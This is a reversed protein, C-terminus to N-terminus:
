GEPQGKSLWRGKLPPKVTRYVPIPLAADRKIKATDVVARGCQAADHGFLVGAAVASFLDPLDTWSLSLATGPLGVGCIGSEGCSGDFAGSSHCLGRQAAASAVSFDEGFPTHLWHDLLLPRRLFVHEWSQAGAVVTGSM